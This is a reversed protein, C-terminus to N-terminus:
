GTTDSGTLRRDLDRPVHKQPLLTPHTRRGQLRPQVGDRLMNELRRTEADGNVDALGEVSEPIGTTKGDERAEMIGYLLDGGVSNAFSSVDALFEKKEGDTAGPLSQKYELTRSEAVKNTVLQQFDEPGIDRMPKQIM